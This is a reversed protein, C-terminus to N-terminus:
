QNVSEDFLSLQIDASTNRIVLDNVKPKPRAKKALKTQKKPKTKKVSDPSAIGYPLHWFRPTLFVAPTYLRMKFEQTVFNGLIVEAAVGLLSLQIYAMNICNKDIDVVTALMSNSGYGRDNMLNRFAIALCGAGCAPDLVTVYGKSAISKKLDSNALTSEATMRSIVYPTFFQGLDKNPEGIEEYITGLFDQRPEDNLALTIMALLESFKAAQNSTYKKIIELYTKELEDSKYFRNAIAIVALELFDDMVDSVRRTHEISSILKVFDKHYNM